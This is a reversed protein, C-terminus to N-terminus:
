ICSRMQSDLKQRLANDESNEFMNVSYESNLRENPHVNIAKRKPLLLCHFLTNQINEFVPATLYLSPIFLHVYLLHPLRRWHELPKPIALLFEDTTRHVM